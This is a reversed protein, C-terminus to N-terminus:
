TFKRHTSNGILLPYAHIHFVADRCVELVQQFKSAHQLEQCARYLIQLQPRHQAVDKEFERRFLMCQMREALRPITM